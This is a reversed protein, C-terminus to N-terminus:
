RNKQCDASEDGCDDSALTGLIAQSSETGELILNGSESFFQAM